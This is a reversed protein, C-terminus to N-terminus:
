RLGMIAPLHRIVHLESPAASVVWSTYGVRTSHDFTSRDESPGYLDTM